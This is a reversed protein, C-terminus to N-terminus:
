GEGNPIMLFIVQKERKLNDKWVYAFQKKNKICNPSLM